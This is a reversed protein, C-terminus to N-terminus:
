RLFRLRGLSGGGALVSCWPVPLDQKEWPDPLFTGRYLKKNFIRFLILEFQSHAGSTMMCCSRMWALYIVFPRKLWAYVSPLPICPPLRAITGLKQCSPPIMLLKEQLNSSRCFLIQLIPTLVCTCRRDRIVEHLTHSCIQRADDAKYEGALYARHLVVSM